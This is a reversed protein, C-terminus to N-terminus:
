GGSGRKDASAAKLFEKVSAIRNRVTASQNWPRDLLFAQHNSLAPHIMDCQEITMGKDDISYDFGGSLYIRWKENSDPVVLVGLYNHHARVGCADLWIETQKATPLGIVTARSTVIQIDHDSAKILFHALAAISDSYADLSLWWNPTGKIRRWVLDVEDESLDYYDDWDKANYQPPVRGPWITNVMHNWAHGFNALVGDCDIGIKAM